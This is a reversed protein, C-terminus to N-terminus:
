ATEYNKIFNIAEGPTKLPIFLKKDINEFRELEWSHLALVKKNLNLAASIENLTGYKGNIAILIDATNVIINNRAFGMGTAIPITIYRNAHDKEAYPLIGITIGNNQYAGKAAAEMVGSLGGCILFWHNQAILSGTQFAIDYINNDEIKSGGLIGVIM